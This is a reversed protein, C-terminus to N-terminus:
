IFAGFHKTICVNGTKSGTTAILVSYCYNAIVAMGQKSQTQDSQKGM